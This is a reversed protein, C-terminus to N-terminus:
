APKGILFQKIGNKPAASHLTLRLSQGVAALEPRVQTLNKRAGLYTWSHRPIAQSPECLGIEGSRIRAFRRSVQHHLGNFSERMDAAATYRFVRMPTPKDAARM